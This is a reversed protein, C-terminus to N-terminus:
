IPFVFLVTFGLLSFTTAKFVDEQSLDQINEFEM